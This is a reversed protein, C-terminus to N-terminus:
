FLAFGAAMEGEASTFNWFKLERDMNAMGMKIERELLNKRCGAKSERQWGIGQVVAPLLCPCKPLVFCPMELPLMLAISTWCNGTWIPLGAAM